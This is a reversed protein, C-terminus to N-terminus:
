DLETLHFAHDIALRRNVVSSYAEGAGEDEEGFIEENM